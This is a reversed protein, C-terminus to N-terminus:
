ALASAHRKWYRDLIAEENPIPKVPPLGWFARHANKIGTPIRKTHYLPNGYAERIPVRRLDFTLPAQYDGDRGIAEYDLIPWAYEDGLRSVVEGTAYDIAYRIQNM